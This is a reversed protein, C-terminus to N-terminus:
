RATKSREQRPYPTHLITEDITLQGSQIRRLCMLLHKLADEAHRDAHSLHLGVLGMRTPTFIPKVQGPTQAVRVVKMQDCVLDLMAELRIPILAYSRLNGGARLLFHESSECVVVRADLQRFGKIMKRIQAVETGKIQQWGFLGRVREDGDLLAQGVDGVNLVMTDVWALGSTGGPDVAVITGMLAGEDPERHTASV